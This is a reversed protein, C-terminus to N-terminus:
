HSIKVRRRVAPCAARAHENSLANHTYCGAHDFKAAASKLKPRRQDQHARAHHISEKQLYLALDGGHLEDPM